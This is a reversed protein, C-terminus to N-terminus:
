RSALIKRLLRELEAQEAETLVDTPFPDSSVARALQRRVKRGAATLTLLKVRRDSGSVREILGLRELRDAIGTINSADCAMAAALERMSHPEHLSLVTRAQTATLGHKGVAAGFADKARDAVQILLRGVVRPPVTTEEAM